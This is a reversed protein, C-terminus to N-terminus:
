LYLCETLMLSTCGTHGIIMGASGDHISKVLNMNTIGIHMTYGGTHM